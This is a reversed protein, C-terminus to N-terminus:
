PRCAEGQLPLAVRKDRELALLGCGWYEVECPCIGHKLPCLRVDVDAGDAVNIVALHAGSSAVGQRVSSRALM